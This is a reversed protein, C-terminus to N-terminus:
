FMSFKDSYSYEPIGLFYKFLIKNSNLYKLNIYKELVFFKFKENLNKIKKDKIKLLKVLDLIKKNLDVNENNLNENKSTLDFLLKKMKEINKFDNIKNGFKNKIEFSDNM